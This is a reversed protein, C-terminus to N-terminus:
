PFNIMKMFARFGATAVYNEDIETESKESLVESVLGAHGQRELLQVLACQSEPTQLEPFINAQYLKEVDGVALGKQVMFAITVLERLPEAGTKFDKSEVKRMLENVEASNKLDHIDKFDTITITKECTRHEVEKIYTEEIEQVIINEKKIITLESSIDERRDTRPTKKTKTKFSAAVDVSESSTKKSSKSSRKGEVTAEVNVSSSTKGQVLSAKRTTRTKKALKKEIKKQNEEIEEETMFSKSSEILKARTTVEGADNMLKCVYYGFDEQTVCKILLTSKSENTVIRYREGNIMARNNHYWIVAIFASNNPYAQKMSLVMRIFVQHHIVV